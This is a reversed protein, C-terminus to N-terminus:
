ILKINKVRYKIYEKKILHRILDGAKCFDREVYSYLKGDEEWHKPHIACFNEVGKTNKAPPGQRLKKKPLIEKKIMFYFLASETEKWQWGSDRIKFDNIMLQKKLYKFVKLLKAGVVDEKGELPKVQLIFLESNNKISNLYELTLIKKIFFDISPKNLFESAKKKFYEMNEISLAAAANREPQIPDIVILSNVKSSNIKKISKHNQIDIIFNKKWEFAHELLAKFSKYYALLIDIVHGSFGRIYSEAGYIGQAKCFLKALIIQNKLDKNNRIYNKMWEVHL